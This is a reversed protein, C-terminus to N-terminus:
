PEEKHRNTNAVSFNNGQIPEANVSSFMAVVVMVKTCYHDRLTIKFLIDSQSGALDEGILVWPTVPVTFTAFFFVFLLVIIISTQDYM